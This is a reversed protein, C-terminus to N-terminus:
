KNIILMNDCKCVSLTLVGLTQTISVRQLEKDSVPKRGSRAEELQEQAVERERSKAHNNRKSRLEDTRKDSLTKTSKEVVAEIQVCIYLILSSVFFSM